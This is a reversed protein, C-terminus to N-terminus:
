DRQQMHRIIERFGQRYQALERKQEEVFLKSFRRPRGL